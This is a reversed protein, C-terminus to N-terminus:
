ISNENIIFSILFYKKSMHFLSIVLFHFFNFDKFWNNLKKKNVYVLFVNKNLDDFNLMRQFLPIIKIM